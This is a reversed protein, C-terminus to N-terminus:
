YAMNKADVKFKRMLERVANIGLLEESSLNKRLEAYKKTGYLEIHDLFELHTMKPNKGMLINKLTVMTKGTYLESQRTIIKAKDAVSYFKMKLKAQNVDIGKIKGRILAGAAM